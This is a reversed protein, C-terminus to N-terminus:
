FLACTGWIGGIFVKFNAKEKKTGVKEIKKGISELVPKYVNKSISGDLQAKIEYVEDELQRVKQQEFNTARVIELTRQAYGLADKPSEGDYKEVYAATGRLLQAEYNGVKKTTYDTFYNMSLLGAFVAVVINEKKVM